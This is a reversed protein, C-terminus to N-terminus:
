TTWPKGGKLWGKERWYEKDKNGDPYKNILGKMFNFMIKIKLPIYVKKSKMSNYFSDAKNELIKEYKRQKKDPMDNWNLAFMRFGCKYIKPIGWSVLSRKITKIVHKTGAGATTSIVLASKSFMEQLPRHVMFICGFHDLFAKVQGSEALVYVPSAIIIGDSSKMAELIPHTYKRHPCFEGGFEGKDFCQYCGACFMPLDKPLYFDIFENDGLSNLKKKVIDITKDTNGARNSGHIITIKM